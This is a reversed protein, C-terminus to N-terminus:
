YCRTVSTLQGHTTYCTQTQIADLMDQARADMAREQDYAELRRHMAARRLQNYEGYTIKSAYLDALFVDRFFVAGDSLIAFRGRCDRQAQDYIALLEREKTTPRTDNILMPLPADAIRYNNGIVIKPRLSDLRPDAYVRECFAIAEDWLEAWEDTQPPPACSAIGLAVVALFISRM